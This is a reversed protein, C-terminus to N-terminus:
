IGPARSRVMRLIMLVFYSPFFPCCVLYAIQEEQVGKNFQMQLTCTFKLESACHLLVRPNARM